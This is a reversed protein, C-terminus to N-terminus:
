PVVSDIISPYVASSAGGRSFPKCGQKCGHGSMEQMVHSAPRNIHRHLAMVRHCEWRRRFRRDLFPSRPNRLVDRGSQRAGSAAKLVSQRAGLPEAECDTQVVVAAVVSGMLIRTTNRPTRREIENHTAPTNLTRSSCDKLAEEVVIVTTGVAETTGAALMMEMVAALIGLSTCLSHILLMCTRDMSPTHCKRVLGAVVGSMAAQVDEAVKAEAVVGVMVGMTVMVWGAAM